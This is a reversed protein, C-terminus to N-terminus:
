AQELHILALIQNQRRHSYLTATMLFGKMTVYSSFAPGANSLCYAWAHRYCLQRAKRNGNSFLEDIGLSLCHRGAFPTGLDKGRPGGNENSSKQNSFVSLSSSLIQHTFAPFVYAPFLIQSLKRGIDQIRITDASQIDLQM